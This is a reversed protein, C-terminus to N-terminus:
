KILMVTGQLGKKRGDIDTFSIVWIYAGVPQLQGNFSGDWGKVMDATEFVKQPVTLM